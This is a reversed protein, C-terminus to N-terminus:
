IELVRYGACGGGHCSCIRLQKTKDHKTLVMTKYIDSVLVTDDVEWTFDADVFELKDIWDGGCACFAKPPTVDKCHFNFRALVKCLADESYYVRQSQPTKNM